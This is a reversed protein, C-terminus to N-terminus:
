SRSINKEEELMIKLRQLRQDWKVGIEQIWQELENLPETRLLYRKDRGKQDVYVLGAQELVKLHKLIGQRTITFENALQTATKPSNKVLNEMLRRRIPEAHVTFIPEASLSSNETRGIPAKLNELSLTYGEGEDTDAAPLTDYRGQIRM